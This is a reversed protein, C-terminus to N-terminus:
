PTSNCTRKPRSATTWRRIRFCWASRSACRTRSASMDHGALEARGRSPKLLTALMNITTTKGAGNPGLFGFIEREYVDLSIGAVATFDGYKKVLDRVEIVTNMIKM